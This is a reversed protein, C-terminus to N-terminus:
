MVRDMFPRASLGCAWIIPPMGLFIHHMVTNGVVTMDMIQQPSVGNEGAMVEILANVSRILEEQMKKVGLGPHDSSYAIRSMIDAGFAVQPNTVSGSAIVDGSTLDCLYLAITTTGIDLALGCLVEDSDPGVAIVERDMWVFAREVGGCDKV